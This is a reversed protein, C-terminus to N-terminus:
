LDRYEDLVAGQLDGPAPAVISRFVGAPIAPDEGAALSLYRRDQRSRYPKLAEAVVANSRTVVPMYEWISGDEQPEVGRRRLAERLSM